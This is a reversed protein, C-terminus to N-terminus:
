AQMGVMTLSAFGTMEEQEEKLSPAGHGGHQYGAGVGRRAVGRTRGRERKEDEGGAGSSVDVDMGGEEEEEMEKRSEREQAGEDEGGEPMSPLMGGVHLNGYENVSDHLMMDDDQIHHNYHRNQDMGYQQQQQHHDKDLPSDTDTAGNKDGGIESPAGSSGGRYSKLEQELERNRAGQATVLQQLYRSADDASIYEVSKRLIMGKNAKVVTGEEGNEEKIAAEKKEAATASPLLPDSPDLLGPSAAMASPSGGNNGNGNATTGDLMCEPILTALESIKENINDRRRREVANHSERRRRRKENALQSQKDVTGNTAAGAAGTTTSSSNAGGSAGNVATGASSQVSSSLPGGGRVSGAGAGGVSSSLVPSGVGGNLNLNMVSVGPPTMGYSLSNGGNVNGTANSGNPNYPPLVYDLVPGHGPSKPISMSQSHGHMSNMGFDRHGMSLSHSHGHYSGTHIPSHLSSVPPLHMGASGIHSESPPSLSFSNYSNGNGTGSTGNLHSIPHSDGPTPLSYESAPM